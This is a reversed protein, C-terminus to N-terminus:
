LVNPVVCKMQVLFNWSIEAFLTLFWERLWHYYKDEMPFQICTDLHLFIYSCVMFWARKYLIQQLFLDTTKFDQPLIVGGGTQLNKEQIQQEASKSFDTHLFGGGVCLTSIIEWIQWEASKSFDAHLFGGGMHFANHTIWGYHYRCSM